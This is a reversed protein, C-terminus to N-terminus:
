TFLLLVVATREGIEPSASSVTVVEWGRGFRVAPLAMAAGSVDLIISGSFAASRFREEFSLLSAETTELQARFADAIGHLKMAHLKEITQQNLM